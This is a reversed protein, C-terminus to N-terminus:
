IGSNFNSVTSLKWSPEQTRIQSLSLFTLLLVIADSAALILVAATEISEDSTANPLEVDVPIVDLLLKV